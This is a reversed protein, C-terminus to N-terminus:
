DVLFHRMGIEPPEDLHVLKMHDFFHVADAHHCSAELPKNYYRLRIKSAAETGPNLRTSMTSHGAM